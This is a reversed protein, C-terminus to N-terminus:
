PSFTHTGCLFYSLQFSQLRHITTVYLLDLSGLYALQVLTV